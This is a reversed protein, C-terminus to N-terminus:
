SSTLVAGCGPCFVEDASAVSGCEACKPCKPNSPRRTEVEEVFVGCTACFLDQAESEAGCSICVGASLAGTYTSELSMKDVPTSKGSTTGSGAVPADTEQSNSGHAESESAEQNADGESERAIPPPQEFDEIATHEAHQATIQEHSTEAQSRREDPSLDSFALLEGYLDIETPACSPPQSNASDGGASARNQDLDM